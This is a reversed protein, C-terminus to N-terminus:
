KSIVVTVNRAIQIMWQENPYPTVGAMHVKRSELHLFFLVYYTV